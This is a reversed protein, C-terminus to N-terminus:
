FGWWKFLNARTPLHGLLMKWSFIAVYSPVYSGM